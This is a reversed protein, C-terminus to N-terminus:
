FYSQPFCFNTVLFGNHLKDLIWIFLRKIRHINQMRAKNNWFSWYYYQKWMQTLTTPFGIFFLLIMKFIDTGGFQLLHFRQMKCSLDNVHCHTFVLCQYSFVINTLKGTCLCITIERPQIWTIEQFERFYGPCNRTAPFRKIGRSYFLVFKLLRKLSRALM